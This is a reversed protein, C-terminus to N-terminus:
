YIVCSRASLHRRSNGTSLSLSIVVIIADEQEVPKKRASSADDATKALRNLLYFHWRELILQQELVNERM